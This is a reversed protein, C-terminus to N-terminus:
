QRGLFNEVLVLLVGDKIGLTANTGILTASDSATVISLNINKFVIAPGPNIFLPATEEVPAPTTWQQKTHLLMTGVM